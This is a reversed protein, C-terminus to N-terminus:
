RYLKFQWTHAVIDDNTQLYQLNLTHTGTRLPAEWCYITYHEFSADGVKVLVAGALGEKFELELDEGVVMLSLRDGADSSSLHEGLQVVEGLDIDVCM